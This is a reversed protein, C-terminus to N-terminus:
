GLFFTNNKSCNDRGRIVQLNSPVHLGSVIKGQLPIIHDVHWPENHLKTLIEALRYQTEIREFDIDTLWEPARKVKSTEYKKKTANSRARNNEAWLQSNAIMRVRNRLYWRKKTASDKAKIDKNLRRQKIHEADCKKCYSAYGSKNGKEPYFNLFDKLLKCKYCTKM